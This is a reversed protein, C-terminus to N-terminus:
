APEIAAVAREFIASETDAASYGSGTRTVIVFGVSCLDACLKQLNRKDTAVFTQGSHLTIKFSNLAAV